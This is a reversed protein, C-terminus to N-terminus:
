HMNLTKGDTLGAVGLPYSDTIPIKLQELFLYMGHEIDHEIGNEWSTILWKEIVRFLTKYEEINGAPFSWYTCQRAHMNEYGPSPYVVSTTFTNKQNINWDFYPDLFYRGSLKSIRDFKSFDYNNLVYNIAYIETLNKIYGPGKSNRLSSDKIDHIRQHDCLNIISVGYHSIKKKMFDTLGTSSCEVLFILANPIRLLISDFTHLTQTFRVDEMGPVMIASVVIVANKM